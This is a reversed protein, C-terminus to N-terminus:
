KLNVNKEIIYIPRSKIGEFIKSLYLGLIGLTFIILGSLFWISVILSTYGSLTIDKLFYRIINFIAFFFSALSITLGLKVTLKLPKDSYAVAADLALQILKSFSYSSKGEFRLDHKTDVKAVNFGVWKAMPLFARMPERMTNIANIVNKSYIGFNGITGDQEIGSLYSFVKYFLQSTLRKFFGDQRNVRRAFVIDFGELAKQYLKPIEEPRDQLDCDMVVVWDGKAHDLGATIAHHQGFNRSLKIGKIKPNNIALAEIKEWSNEPCGDEILIIEYDETIYEVSSSIRTVLEDLIYYAKYVPSIISIKM